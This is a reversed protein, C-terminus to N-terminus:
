KRNFVMLFNEFEKIIAFYEELIFFFYYSFINLSAYSLFVLIDAASQKYLPRWNVFDM